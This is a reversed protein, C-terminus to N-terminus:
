IVDISCKAVTGDFTAVVPATSSNIKCLATAAKGVPSGAFALEVIEGAVGVITVSLQETSDSLSVVRASAIPAWKGVEGLFAFKSKPQVPAIHHLGFDSYACARLALPEADSFPGLLTVNAPRQGVSDSAQYGTWAVFAEANGGFDDGLHKPFLKFSANLGADDHRHTMPIRVRVDAYLPM